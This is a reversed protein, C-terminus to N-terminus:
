VDGILHKEGACGSLDRRHTFQVLAGDAGAFRPREGFPQLPLKEVDDTAFIFAKFLPQGIQLPCRAPTLMSVGTVRVVAVPLCSHIWSCGGFAYASVRSTSGLFHGDVLILALIATTPEFHHLPHCFGEQSDAFLAPPM